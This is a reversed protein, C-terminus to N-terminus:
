SSHKNIIRRQHLTTACVTPMRKLIAPLPPSWYAQLCGPAGYVIWPWPLLRLPDPTNVLAHCIVSCSSCGVCSFLFICAQMLPADFGCQAFSRVPRPADFGSVRVGLQRRYDTVQSSYTPCASLVPQNWSGCFRRAGAPM